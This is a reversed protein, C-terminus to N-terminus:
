LGLVNVAPAVLLDGSNRGGLHGKRQSLRGQFGVAGSLPWPSPQRSVCAAVLGRHAPGQGWARPVPMRNVCVPSPPVAYGLLLRPAWCSLAASACPSDQVGAPQASSGRGLPGPGRRGDTQAIPISFTRGVSVPRSQHGTSPHTSPLPLRSPSQCCLPLRKLVTLIM